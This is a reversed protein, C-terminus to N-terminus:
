QYLYCTGKAGDKVPSASQVAGNLAAPVPDTLLHLM